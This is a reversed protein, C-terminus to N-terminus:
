ELGELSPAPPRILLYEAVAAAGAVLTFVVALWFWPTYVTDFILSAAVVAGGADNAGKSAQAINKALVQEIPFGIESQIAILVLGM